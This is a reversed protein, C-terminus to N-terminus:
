APTAPYEGILIEPEQDTEQLALYPVRWSAMQIHRKVFIVVWPAAIVTALSGLWWYSQWETLTAQADSGTLVLETSEVIWCLGNNAMHIAIPIFLSKTEIYLVCMAYGFFFAGIIDPHGLGFLASSVFVARRVNWKLTWRTLLLGRFLFEEIVPTILVVDFFCLLNALPGSTATILRPQNLLHWEVFRPWVYSFPFHLLFTSAIAVVILPFVVLAYQRLFPPSPRVGFLLGPRWSRSLSAAVLLFFSGNFIIGMLAREGTSSRETLGLLDIIVIAFFTAVFALLLLGLLLRARPLAYRTSDDQM